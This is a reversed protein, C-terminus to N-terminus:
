LLKQELINISRFLWLFAFLLCEIQLLYQVKIRAARLCDFLSFIEDTMRYKALIRIVLNIQEIPYFRINKQFSSLEEKMQKFKLTPDKITSLQSKQITVCLHGSRFDDKKAFDNAILVDEAHKGAQILNNSYCSLSFRLLISESPTLIGKQAWEFYNDFVTIANNNSEFRSVALLINELLSVDYLNKSKLLNFINM